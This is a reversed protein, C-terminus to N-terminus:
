FLGIINNHYHIPISNYQKRLDEKNLKNFDLDYLERFIDFYKKNSDTGCETLVWCDRLDKAYDKLAPYEWGEVDIKILNPKPFHKLTTTVVTIGRKNNPTFSNTTTSGKGFYLKSIGDKESVAAPICEVINNYHNVSINKLLIGFNTPDPEFAYVKGNEGVLRALTLTHYGIHAGIDFVTDGKKVLREMAKTEKEEWNKKM